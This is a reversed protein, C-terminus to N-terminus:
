EETNPILLVEAPAGIGQAEIFELAHVSSLGPGNEMLVVADKPLKALQDLLQAVTM